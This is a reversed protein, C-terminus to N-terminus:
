GISVNARETTMKRELLCGGVGNGNGDVRNVETRMGLLNTKDVQAFNVGCNSGSGEKENERQDLFGGFPLGRIYGRYGTSYGMWTPIHYGYDECYGRLGECDILYNLHM